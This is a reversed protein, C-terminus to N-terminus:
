TTDSEPVPNDHRHTEVWIRVEQGREHTQTWILLDVHPLYTVSAALSAHNMTSFLYCHLAGVLPEKFSNHENHAKAM